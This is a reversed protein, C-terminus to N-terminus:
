NIVMTLLKKYDNWIYMELDQKQLLRTYHDNHYSLGIQSDIYTIWGYWTLNISDNSTLIYMTSFLLFNVWFIYRLDSLYKKWFEPSRRTSRRSLEYQSLPLMTLIQRLCATKNVCNRLISTYFFLYIFFYFCLFKFENSLSLKESIKM